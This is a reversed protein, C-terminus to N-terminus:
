TQRNFMQGIRHSTASVAMRKARHAACQGAIKPGLYGRCSVLRIGKYGLYAMISAIGFALWGGFRWMSSFMIIWLVFVVLLPVLITPDAFQRIASAILTAM